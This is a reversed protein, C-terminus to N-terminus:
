GREIAWGVVACLPPGVEDEDASWGEFHVKVTEKTAHVVTAPLWAGECDQALLRHGPQLAPGFLETM